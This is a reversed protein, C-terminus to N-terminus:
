AVVKVTVGPDKRLVEVGVSREDLELVEGAGPAAADADGEGVAAADAEGEPLAAAAAAPGPAEADAGPAATM